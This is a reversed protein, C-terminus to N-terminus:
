ACNIAIRFFSQGQQHLKSFDGSRGVMFFLTGFENEAEMKWLKLRNALGSEVGLREKRFNRGESKQYVGNTSQKEYLSAGYSDPGMWETFQENLKKIQENRFQKFEPSNWTSTTIGEHTEAWQLKIYDETEFSKRM